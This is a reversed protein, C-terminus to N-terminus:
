PTPAGLRQLMITVGDDLLEAAKLFARKGAEELTEENQDCALTVHASVKLDGYGFSRGLTFSVSAHPGPGSCLMESPIFVATKLDYPPQGPVEATVRGTTM